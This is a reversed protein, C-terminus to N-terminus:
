NTLPQKSSTASTGSTLQSLTRRTTNEVLRWAPILFSNEEQGITVALLNVLSSPLNEVMELTIEPDAKHLVTYVYQLNYERRDEVKDLEAAERYNLICYEVYGDPFWEESGKIYVKRKATTAQLVDHIKLLNKAKEKDVEEIHEIESELALLKNKTELNKEDLNPKEDVKKKSM